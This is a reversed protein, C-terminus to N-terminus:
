ARGSALEEDLIQGISKTSVKGAFGHEIRIRLLAQLKQLALDAETGGLLMSEFAYKM